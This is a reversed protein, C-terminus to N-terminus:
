HQLVLYTLHCFLANDSKKSEWYCKQWFNDCDSRAHLIIALYLHSTKPRCPPISRIVNSPTQFTRWYTRGDTWLFHERKWHFKTQLYLDILSARRYATHGWGIDLHLDRTKQLELFQVKRPRDWGGNVIPAPFHGSIRLSSRLIQIQDPWIKSIQWINKHWTAKFKSPDRHNTRVCFRKELKM